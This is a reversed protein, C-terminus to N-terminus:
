LTSFCKTKKVLIKKILIKKMLIKKMQTKEVIKEDSREEYDSTKEMQIKKADDVDDIICQHTKKKLLM